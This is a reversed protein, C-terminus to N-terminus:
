SCNLQPISDSTPEGLPASERSEPPTPETSLSGGDVILPSRLDAIQSRFDPKEAPVTTANTKHDAEADLQATQGMLQWLGKGAPRSKAPESAADVGDAAVAAGDTVAAGDAVDAGPAVSVVAEVAVCGAPDVGLAPAPSRTATIRGLAAFSRDNLWLM